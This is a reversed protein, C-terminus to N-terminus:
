LKLDIKVKEFEQLNYEMDDDQYYQTMEVNAHGLFEKAAKDSVGHKMLWTAFYRRFSHFTIDGNINYDDKYKEIFEKWHRHATNEPIMKGKNNLLLLNEYQEDKKINNIKFYLERQLYIKKIEEIFVDLLPIYRKGNMSKTTEEIVYGKGKVKVQQQSIRLLKKEFDFSKKYDIALTESIRTGCCSTILIINYLYEKGNEKKLLEIIKELTSDDCKAHKVVTTKPLIIEDLFNYEIKNTKSLKNLFPRIIKCVRNVLKDGDKKKIKEIATKFMELSLESIKIKKFNILNKNVCGMYDEKTRTTIKNNNVKEDIFEEFAQIFYKDKINIEEKSTTEILNNEKKYLFDIINKECETQDKGYIYKYKNKKFIDKGIYISAYWRGDKRQHPKVM